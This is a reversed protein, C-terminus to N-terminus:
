ENKGELIDIIEGINTVIGSEFIDVGFQDEIRVTLDALMFSDMELDNRFDMDKNISDIPQLGEDELIENIVELLKNEM